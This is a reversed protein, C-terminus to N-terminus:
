RRKEIISRFVIRDADGNCDKLFDKFSQKNGTMESVKIPKKEAKKMRM